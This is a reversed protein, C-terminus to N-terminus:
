PTRGSFVWYGIAKTYFFAIRTVPRPPGYPQSIIPECVATFKNAMREPRGKGEPVNRTSVERLYQTSGLAM